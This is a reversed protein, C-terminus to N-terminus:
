SSGGTKHPEDEKMVTNLKSLKSKIKDFFQKKKNLWNKIKQLRNNKVDNISQLWSKNEKVVGSILDQLDSTLPVDIKANSFFIMFIMAFLTGLAIKYQMLMKKAKLPETQYLKRAAKPMFDNNLRNNNGFGIAKVALAIFAARITVGTFGCAIPKATSKIAADVKKDEHAFKLDILPLLAVSALTLLLKQEPMSIYEGAMKAAKGVFEPVYKPNPPLGKFTRSCNYKIKNDFSSGIKM